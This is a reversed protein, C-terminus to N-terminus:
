PVNEIEIAGSATLTMVLLGASATLDSGGGDTYVNSFAVLEGTTANGIVLYLFSISGSLTWTPSNFSWRLTDGTRTAAVGTLTLGGNTYGNATALEATLDAYTCNGSGGVFSQSLAQAATTLYAEYTDGGNMAAVDIRELAEDFLIFPGPIPM